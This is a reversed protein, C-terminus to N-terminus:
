REGLFALIKKKTREMANYVAKQNKHLKEAIEPYSEGNMYGSWVEKEMDSFTGSENDEIFKMVDQLVLSMEPDGGEMAPITEELTQESSEEVPRSLSVSTNLPSHKKRNAAKIADYIQRNICLEAYTHFSADKGPEYSKIAKFLGIMAEQIVDESDAGMIFYTHAKGRVVDRYQRILYEEAEQDGLQAMLALEEHSVKEYKGPM